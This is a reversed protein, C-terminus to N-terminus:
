RKGFGHRYEIRVIDDYWKADTLAKGYGFYISSNMPM